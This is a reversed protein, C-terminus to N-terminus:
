PRRRCRTARPQQGMYRSAMRRLERYVLPMLQDLAASDGDSWRLLLHSVITLTDM